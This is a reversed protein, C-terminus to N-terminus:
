RDDGARGRAVARQMEIAAEALAREIAAEIRAIAVPLEVVGLLEAALLPAAGILRERVAVGITTFAAEAERRDLVSGVEREYALRAARAAYLERETRAAAFSDDAAHRTARAPSKPSLAPDTNEARVRDVEFPDLLHWGRQDRGHTPIKGAAIERTIVTPDIGRSRAYDKGSVLTVQPAPAPAADIALSDM